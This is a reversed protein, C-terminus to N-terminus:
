RPPATPTAVTQDSALFSGDQQLLRQLEGQLRRLIPEAEKARLELATEFQGVVNRVLKEELTAGEGVLMLLDLFQPRHKLAAAYVARCAQALTLEGEGLANFVPDIVEHFRHHAAIEEDLMRSEAQLREWDLWVPNAGASWCGLGRWTFISALSVGLCCVFVSALKIM